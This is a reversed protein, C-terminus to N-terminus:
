PSAERRPWRDAQDLEGAEQEPRLSEAAVWGPHGWQLGGERVGACFGLTGQVQRKRCSLRKSHIETQQKMREEKFEQTEWAIPSEESVPFFM